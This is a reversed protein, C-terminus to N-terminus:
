APFVGGRGAQESFWRGLEAPNKGTRLAHLRAGGLMAWIVDLSTRSVPLGQEFTHNELVLKLVGAPPLPDLAPGSRTIELVLIADITGSAAIRAETFVDAPAVPTKPSRRKWGEKLVPRLVPFFSVTQQSVNLHERIGDVAVREGRRSVVVLDDSLFRFGGLTLAVSTTTKGKGSHGVLLVGRADDAVVCGAHLLLRGRALLLQKLVPAVLSQFHLPGKARTLRQCRVEARDRGPSVYAYAATGERAILFHVSGDDGPIALPAGAPLTRLADRLAPTLSAAFADDELVSAAFPVADASPPVQSMSFSLAMAEAVAPSDGSFRLTLGPVDYYAPATAEDTM